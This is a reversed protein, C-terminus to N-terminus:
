NQGVGIPQRNVRKLLRLPAVYRIRKIHDKHRWYRDGFVVCKVMRSKTHGLVVCPMYYDFGNQGIAHRCLINHTAMSVDYKSLDM